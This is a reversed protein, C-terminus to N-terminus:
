DNSTSTSKLTHTKKKLNYDYNENSSKVNMKIKNIEIARLLTSKNLSHHPGLRLTVDSPLFFLLLRKIKHLVYYTCAYM